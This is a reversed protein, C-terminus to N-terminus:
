PPPSFPELEVYEIFYAILSHFMCFSSMTVTLISFPLLAGPQGEGRGGTIKGAKELYSGGQSGYCLLPM